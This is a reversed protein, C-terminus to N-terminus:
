YCKSVWSFDVWHLTRPNVADVTVNLSWVFCGSIKCGGLGPTSTIYSHCFTWLKEGPNHCFTGQSMKGMQKM